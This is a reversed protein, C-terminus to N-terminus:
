RSFMQELMFVVINPEQEVLGCCTRSRGLWVLLLFLYVYQTKRKLLSFLIYQWLAVSVTSIYTLGFCFCVENSFERICQYSDYTLLKVTIEWGGTKQLIIYQLRGDVLKRYYLICFGETKILLM